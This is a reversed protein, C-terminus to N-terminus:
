NPLAARSCLQLALWTQGMAMASLRERQKYLMIEKVHRETELVIKSQHM